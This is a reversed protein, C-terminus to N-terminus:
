RFRIFNLGELHRIRNGSKGIPQHYDIEENISAHECGDRKKMTILASVAAITAECENKFWLEVCKKLFSKIINALTHACCGAAVWDKFANQM